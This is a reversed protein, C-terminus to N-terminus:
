KPVDYERSGETCFLVVISHENLRLQNRAERCVTKLAALTSAGCPGANIGMQKLEEVAVHVANDTVLVDADVGQKLVPWATSSVTGCNMGCMITDGTSVSVMNGAELSARLCAATTPEVTLVSARCPHGEESKKFHETVAHAVSGVGVPVFAHTPRRGDTAQEVQLDSENLM